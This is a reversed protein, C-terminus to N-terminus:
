CKPDGFHCTGYGGKVDFSTHNLDLITKRPRAEIDYTMCGFLIRLFDSAPPLMRVHVRLDTSLHMIWEFAGEMELHVQMTTMDMRNYHALDPSQKQSVRVTLPDRLLLEYGHALGPKLLDVAVDALVASLAPKTRPMGYGTISYGAVFTPHM